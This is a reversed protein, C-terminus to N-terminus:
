TYYGAEEAAEEALTALEIQGSCILVTAVHGPSGQAIIEGNVQVTTTNTDTNYTAQTM